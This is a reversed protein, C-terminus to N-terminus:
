LDTKPGERPSTEKSCITKRNPHKVDGFTFTLLIFHIYHIFHILATAQGEGSPEIRGHEPHYKRQIIQKRITQKFASPAQFYYFHRISGKFPQSGARSPHGSPKNICQMATRDFLDISKSWQFCKADESFSLALSSYISPLTMQVRNAWCATVSKMEKSYGKHGYVCYQYYLDHGQQFM